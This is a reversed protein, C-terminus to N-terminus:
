GILLYVILGWNLIMTIQSLRTLPNLEVHRTMIELPSKDERALGKTLGGYVRSHVLGWNWIM